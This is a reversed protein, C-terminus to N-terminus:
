KINPKPIDALYPFIFCEKKKKSSHSCIHALNPQSNCSRHSHLIFDNNIPDPGYIHPVKLPGARGDGSSAKAEERKDFTMSLLLLDTLEFARSRSSEIM